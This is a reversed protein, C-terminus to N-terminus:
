TRSYRYAKKLNRALYQGPSGSGAFEEYVVEPVDFYEYVTGNKFEVSLTMSSADYKIREITSSSVPQWEM